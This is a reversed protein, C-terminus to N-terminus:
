DIRHDLPEDSPVPLWREIAGILAPQVEMAPLAHYRGQVIELRVLDGARELIRGLRGGIGRRWDELAADDSGFFLLVPIEREVLRELDDLVNGSVWEFESPRASPRRARLRRLRRLAVRLYRRRAHRDRMAVLTNRRFARRLLEATPLTEERESKHYNRVIPSFMAVGTAGSTQAAVHLALRAGGCTGMFRVDTIGEAQLWAVVAKADELFPAALEWPQEVGTSEGAGRHDFRVVHYGLAALRRALGVFLRSRGVSTVASRGSLLVIAGGVPTVTPETVVGLLLEDGAPLRIFREQATTAIAGVM